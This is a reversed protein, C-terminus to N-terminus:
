PATYRINNQLVEHIYVNIGCAEFLNVRKKFAEKLCYITGRSLPCRSPPGSIENSIVM